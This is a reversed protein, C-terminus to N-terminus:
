RRWAAPDAARGETPVVRSRCPAEAGTLRLDDVDGADVNFLDRTRLGLAALVDGTECSARCHVMLTRREPNYAVRLSPKTDKHAPCLTLYGDDEAAVGDLKGLFDALTLGSADPSPNSFQDM